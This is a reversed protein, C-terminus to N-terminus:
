NFIKTEAVQLVETNGYIWSETTGHNRLESTSLVGLTVTSLQCNGFFMKQTVLMVIVFLLYCIVTEM